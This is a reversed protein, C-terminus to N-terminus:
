ELICLLDTKKEVFDENQSNNKEFKNLFEINKLSRNIFINALEYKELFYLAFAINIELIAIHFLALLSNITKFRVFLVKILNQWANLTKEKKLLIVASNNISFILFRLTKEFFFNVGKDEHFIVDKMPKELTQNIIITYDVSNVDKTNDTLELYIEKTPFKPKDHIQLYKFIMMLLKENRRYIFLCNKLDLTQLLQSCFGFNESLFYYIDAEFELINEIGTSLKLTLTEFEKEITEPNYEKKRFALKNM